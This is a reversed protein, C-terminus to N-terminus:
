SRKNGALGSMGHVSEVMLGLGHILVGESDVLEDGGGEAAPLGVEIEYAISNLDTSGARPKFDLAVRDGATDTAGLEIRTQAYAQSYKGNHTV